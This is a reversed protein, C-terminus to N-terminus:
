SVFAKKSDDLSSEYFNEAFGFRAFLALSSVLDALFTDTTEGINASVVTQNEAETVYINVM